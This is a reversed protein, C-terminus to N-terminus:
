NSVLAVVLKALTTKNVEPEHIESMRSWCFQSLPKNWSNKQHKKLSFNMQKLMKAFIVIWGLWTHRDKTSMKRAKSTFIRSINYRYSGCCGSPHKNYIFVTYTWTMSCLHVTEGSGESNLCVIYLGLPLKLCFTLYRPEMPFSLMCMQTILNSFNM